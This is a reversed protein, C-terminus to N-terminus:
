RSVSMKNYVAASADVESVLISSLDATLDQTIQTGGTDDQVTIGDSAMNVAAMTRGPITFNRGKGNVAYSVLFQDFNFIGLEDDPYVITGEVDAKTVSFYLIECASHQTVDELWAGLNTALRAAEDAADLWAEAETADVVFRRNTHKGRSDGFGLEAFYQLAFAM